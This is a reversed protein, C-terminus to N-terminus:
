SVGGKKVLDDFAQTEPATAPAASRAVRTIATLLEALQEAEAITLQARQWWVHRRNAALFAVQIRLEGTASKVVEVRGLSTTEPEQRKWFNTM